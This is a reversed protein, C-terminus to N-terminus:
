YKTHTSHYLAAGHAYWEEISGKATAVTHNRLLGYFARPNAKIDEIAKAQVARQRERLKSRTVTRHLASLSRFDASSLKDHGNETALMANLQDMIMKCEDDYWDTHINSLAATQQSVKRGHQITTRAIKLHLKKINTDVPQIKMEQEFVQLYKVMDQTFRDLGYSGLVYYKKNDQKPPPVRPLDPPISCHLEVDKHDSIKNLRHVKLKKIYPVTRDACLAYDLLSSSVTGQKKSTVSHHTCVSTRPFTGNLIVLDAKGIDQIIQKERTSPVHKDETKRKWKKRPTDPEGPGNGQSQNAQGLIPQHSGTHCNLDLLIIVHPHGFQTNITQMDELMYQLIRDADTRKLTYLESDEPPFYAVGLFTPKAPAHDIKLWM